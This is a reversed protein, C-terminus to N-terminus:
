YRIVHSGIRWVDDRCMVDDCDALFSYLPYLSDKQGETKHPLLITRLLGLCKEKANQKGSNHSMGERLSIEQLQPNNLTISIYITSLLLFAHLHFDQVGM